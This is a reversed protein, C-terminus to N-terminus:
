MESLKQLRMAAIKSAADWTLNRTVFEKALAARQARGEEDEFAQRMKKGLDHVDPEVWM